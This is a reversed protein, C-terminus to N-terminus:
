STSGCTRMIRDTAAWWKRSRGWKRIMITFPSARLSPSLGPGTEDTVVNHEDKVGSRDTLVLTEGNEV